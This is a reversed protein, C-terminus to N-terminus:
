SNGKWANFIYASFIKQKTIINSGCLIYLILTLFPVENKGSQGKPSKQESRHM